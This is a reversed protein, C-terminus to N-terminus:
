EPLVVIHVQLFIHVPKRQCKKRVEFKESCFWQIIIQSKKSPSHIFSGDGYIKVTCVLEIQKPQHHTRFICSDIFYIKIVRSLGLSIQKWFPLSVFREAMAREFQSRSSEFNARDRDLMDRLDDVSSRWFLLLGTQPIGGCVCCSWPGGESSSLFHPRFKPLYGFRFWLQPSSHRFKLFISLHLPQWLNHIFPRHLCQPSHWHCRWREQTIWLLFLAQGLQHYMQLRLSFSFIIETLVSVFSVVNVEGFPATVPASYASAPAPCPCQAPPPCVPSTVQVLCVASGQLIKLHVEFFSAQLHSWFCFILSILNFFFFVTTIPSFQRVQTQFM